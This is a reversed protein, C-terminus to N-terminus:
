KRILAASAAILNTQRSKASQPVIEYILSRLTTATQKLHENRFAIVNITLLCVRVKNVAKSFDNQLTTMEYDGPGKTPRDTLQNPFGLLKSKNEKM